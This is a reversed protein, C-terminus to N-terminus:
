GERVTPSSNDLKRTTDETVSPPTLIEATEARPALYDAPLDRAPPLETGRAATALPLGRTKAETLRKGGANEELLLGYLMRALGVSMILAALILFVFFDEKMLMLVLVILGFVVGASMWILGKRVGRQRPTLGTPEGEEEGSALVRAHAALPLGCRSCYRVEESL